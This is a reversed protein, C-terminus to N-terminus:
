LNNKLEKLEKGLAEIKLQEISKEQPVTIQHIQDIKKEVEDVHCNTICTFFLCVLINLIGFFAIDSRIISQETM